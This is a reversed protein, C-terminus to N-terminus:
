TNYLLQYCAQQNIAARIAAFKGRILGSQIIRSNGRIWGM